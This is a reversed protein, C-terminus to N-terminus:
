RKSEERGADTLTYSVKSVGWVTNATVLGDVALQRLDAAVNIRNLGLAEAIDAPTSVGRGVARLLRTRRPLELSAKNM